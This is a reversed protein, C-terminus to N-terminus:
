FYQDISGNFLLKLVNLKYWTNAYFCFLVFLCCFLAIILGIYKGGLSRGSNVVNVSLSTLWKELYAFLPYFIITIVAMAILTFTLPKYNMKFSLLIDGIKSTLLNATLITITM